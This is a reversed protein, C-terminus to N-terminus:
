KRVQRAQQEREHKLSGLIAEELTLRGALDLKDTFMKLHRGAMQLAANKDHCRFKKTVVLKAPKRGDGPQHEELVEVGSIVTRLEVPLEHLARPQGTEDYLQSIDYFCLRAIEESVREVTLEAKATARKVLAKIAAQVNVKSLLRSAQQRATRKSYGARIAAQTANFDVVYETVFAQHKLPLSAASPQM